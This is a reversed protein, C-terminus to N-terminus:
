GWFVGHTAFIFVIVVLALIIFVGKPIGTLDSAPTIWDGAAGVELFLDLTDQDCTCRDGGFVRSSLHNTKGCLPCHSV